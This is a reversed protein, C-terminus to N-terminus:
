RNRREVNVGLGGLQANMRALIAVLSMAIDDRLLRGGDEVRRERAWKAYADVVQSTDARHESM